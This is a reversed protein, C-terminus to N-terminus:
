DLKKGCFPCNNIVWYEGVSGDISWHDRRKAITNEAVADGFSECCYEPEQPKPKRPKFLNVGDSPKPNVVTLPPSTKGARDHSLHHHSYSFAVCKALEEEMREAHDILADQRKMAGELVLAIRVLAEEYQGDETLDKLGFLGQYANKKPLEPKNM